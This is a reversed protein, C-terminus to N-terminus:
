IQKQHPSIRRSVEFNSANRDYELLNDMKPIRDKMQLYVEALTINNNSIDLSRDILWCVRTPWQELLSVWHGLSLWSFEIEFARMLRGPIKSSSPLRNVTGSLTLSNVIRRIARPNMNSFYDDTLTEGINKSNAAIITPKRSRGGDADRLSLHSGYFTEQRRFREKWEAM